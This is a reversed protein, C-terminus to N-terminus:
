TIHYSPYRATFWPHLVDTKIAHTLLLLAQSLERACRSVQVLFVWGKRRKKWQAKKKFSSDYYRTNESHLSLVVASM